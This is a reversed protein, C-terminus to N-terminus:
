GAPGDITPVDTITLDDTVSVDGMDPVAVTPVDTLTLDETVSIGGLQSNDVTTSETLTISDSINPEVTLEPTGVSETLTISDSLNVDSTIDVTVSETLTLNDGGNEIFLDTSADPSAVALEWEPAVVQDVYNIEVYSLDENDATNNAIWIPLTTNQPVFNRDIMEVVKVGNIQFEVKNRQWFITFDNNDTWTLDSVKTADVATTTVTGTSGITICNVVTGLIQFYAANRASAISPSKLGFEKNQGATPAAAMDLGFTFKGRLYQHRSVITVSNLRIKNSVSSASGYLEQWYATNLGYLYPDYVFSYYAQNSRVDM